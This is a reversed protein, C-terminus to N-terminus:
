ELECKSGGALVGGIHMCTYKDTREGTPKRAHGLATTLPSMVCYVGDLIAERYVWANPNM